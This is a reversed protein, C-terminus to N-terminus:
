TATVPNNPTWLNLFLRFFLLLSFSLFLFLGLFTLICLIRLCAFIFIIFWFLYCDYSVVPLTYMIQKSINTEHHNNTNNREGQM